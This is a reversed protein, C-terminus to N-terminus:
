QKTLDVLVDTLHSERESLEDQSKAAASPDLLNQVNRYHAWAWALSTIVVPVFILKVPLYFCLITTFLTFVFPIIPARYARQEDMYVFQRKINM